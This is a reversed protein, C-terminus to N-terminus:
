SAAPMVRNRGPLRVTKRRAQAFFSLGVIAVSVTLLIFRERRLYSWFFAWAEKVTM